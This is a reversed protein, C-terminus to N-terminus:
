LKNEICKLLCELSMNTTPHANREDYNVLGFYKTGWFAGNVDFFNWYALVGFYADPYLKIIADEREEIHQLMNKGKWGDNVKIEIAAILKNSKWITIDPIIIKDGKRSINQESVVQYDRFYCKIYLLCTETFFDDAKTNVKRDLLEKNNKIHFAWFAGMRTMIADTIERKNNIDFKYERLKSVINKQIEFLNEYHKSFEEDIKALDEDM